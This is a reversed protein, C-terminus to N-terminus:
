TNGGGYGGERVCEFDVMCTRILAAPINSGKTNTNTPLTFM